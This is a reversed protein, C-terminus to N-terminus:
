RLQAADPFISDLHKDAVSLYFDSHDRHSLLGSVTIWKTKSHGRLSVHEATSAAQLQRLSLGVISMISFSLQKFSLMVEVNFLFNNLFNHVNVSSSTAATICYSYLISIIVIIIIIIWWSARQLGNNWINLTKTGVPKTSTPRFIIIASM